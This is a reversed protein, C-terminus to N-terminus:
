FRATSIHIRPNRLAPRQAGNRGDERKLRLTHIDAETDNRKPFRMFFNGLTEWLLCNRRSKWHNRGLVFMSFNGPSVHVLGVQDRVCARVCARASRCGLFVLKPFPVRFVSSIQLTSADSLLKARVANAGVGSAKLHFVMRVSSELHCGLLLPKLPVEGTM